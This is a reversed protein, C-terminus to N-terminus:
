LFTTRRANSPGWGGRRWGLRGTGTSAASCAPRDRAISPWAFRFRTLQCLGVLARSRTRCRHATEKPM